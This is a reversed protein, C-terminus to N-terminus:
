EHAGGVLRDKFASGRWAGGSPADVVAGSSVGLTPASPGGPSAGTPVGASPFTGARVGGAGAVASVVRETQGADIAGSEPLANGAVPTLDPRRAAAPSVSGVSATRDRNFSPPQSVGPGPSAQTSASSVAQWKPTQEPSRDARPLHVPRSRCVPEFHSGISPGLEAIYSKNSSWLEVYWSRARVDVPIDFHGHANTGDFEIFTVDYFRLVWHVSDAGGSAALREVADVGDRGTVEWYVHLRFPDVALLVVRSQGYAEPLESELAGRSRRVFPQTDPLLEARRGPRPAPGRRLGRRARALVKDAGGQVAALLAEFRPPVDTGTNHQCCEASEDALVELPQPCLERGLHALPANALVVLFSPDRQALRRLAYLGPGM